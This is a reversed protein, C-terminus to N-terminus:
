IAVEQFEIICWVIIPKNMFKKIENIYSERKIM